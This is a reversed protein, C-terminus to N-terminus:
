RVATVVYDSGQQEIEVNVKKGVILKDFLAKDSVSFTMTMAPWKLSQIPGHALTVKGNAPDAAKVTGTAKHTVAAADKGGHTGSGSDMMEGCKQANMRKMDKSKMDACKQMDMGKMDMDKMGGSQAFVAGSGSLALFLLLISSHKM